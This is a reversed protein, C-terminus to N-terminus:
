VSKAFHHAIRAEREESEKEEASVDRRMSDFYASTDGNFDQVIVQVARRLGADDPLPEHSPRTGRKDTKMVISHLM